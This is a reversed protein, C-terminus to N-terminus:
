VISVTMDTFFYIFGEGGLIDCNCKIVRTFVYM